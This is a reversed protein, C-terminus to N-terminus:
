IFEQSWGFAVYLSSLLQDNQHRYVLSFNSMKFWKVVLCSKIWKM